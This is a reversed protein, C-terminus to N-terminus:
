GRLLLGPIDEWNSEGKGEHSCAPRVYYTPMQGDGPAPGSLLQASSQQWSHGLPIPVVNQKMTEKPGYGVYVNWATACPPADDVSVLLGQGDDTTIVAPESAAGEEGSEGVWAVRVYYTAGPVPLSVTALVPRPGRPIPKTVIGVGMELLAQWAWEAAKEWERWRASYRDNLQTHAADRYTLALTRFVHCKRLAENVAINALGVDWVGRRALYRKLEIGLEEQAAALKASLDIGETRATELLTSDYAMLEEISSLVGDTFLAM